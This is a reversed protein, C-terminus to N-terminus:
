RVGWIALLIFAVEFGACVKWIYRSWFWTMTMHREPKHMEMSHYLCVFGCILLPIILTTAAKGLLTM